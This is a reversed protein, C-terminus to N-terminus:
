PVPTSTFFPYGFSLGMGVTIITVMLNILMSSIFWSIWYAPHSMGMVSLGQRLKKDKERIIDVV